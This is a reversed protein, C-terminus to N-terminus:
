ADTTEPTRASTEVPVPRRDTGRTRLRRTTWLAVFWVLAAVALWPLTVGIVVVIVALTSALAEWGTVLGGWFGTTEEDPVTPETTLTIVLTSLDVQDALANRQAQLSELDGQRATLTSEADLLDATTAATSMLTELRTASTKLAKIRADLDRAQGGVDTSSIRTAEVTGIEALATITPTVKDAPVRVTLDARPESTETRAQEVRQETRGGAQEVLTSIEQAAAVPDTVVVEITGTTVMQQTQEAASRAGSDGDAAAEVAQPAVEADAQSVAGSDQAGDSACGALLGAAVLGSALVLVIRPPASRHHAAAPTRTM